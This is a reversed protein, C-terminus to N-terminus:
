VQCGLKEYRKRLILLDQQVSEIMPSRPGREAAESELIATKLRRCEGKTDYGPQQRRAPEAPKKAGPCPQASVVPRGGSDCRYPLHHPSPQGAQAPVLVLSLSVSAALLALRPM